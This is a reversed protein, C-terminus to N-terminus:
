GDRLKRGLISLLKRRKLDEAGVDFDLKVNGMDVSVKLHRQDSLAKIMEKAVGFISSRDIDCTALAVSDNGITIYSM